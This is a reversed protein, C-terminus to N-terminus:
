SRVCRFGLGPQCDSRSRISTTSRERHEAAVTPNGSIVVEDGGFIFRHDFVEDTKKSASDKLEVKVRAATPCTTTWEAVNSWLGFIPPSTDTHDESPTGVPGFDAPLAVQDLESRANPAHLEAAILYEGLTPLRKGVTEAFFTADVFTAQIAQSPAISEFRRWN